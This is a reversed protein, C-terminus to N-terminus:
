VADIIALVWAKLTKTPGDWAAAVAAHPVQVREAHGDVERVVRIEVPPTLADNREIRVQLPKTTVARSVATDKENFGM